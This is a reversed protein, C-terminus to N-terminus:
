TSWGMEFLQRSCKTFFTSGDDKALAIFVEECDRLGRGDLPHVTVNCGIIRAYLHSDAIQRWEQGTQKVSQAITIIEVSTM